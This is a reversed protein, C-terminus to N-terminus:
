QLAVTTTAARPGLVFVFVGVARKPLNSAKSNKKYEEFSKQISARGSKRMTDVNVLDKVAAKDRDGDLLVRLNDMNKVERIKENYKSDVRPLVDKVLKTKEVDKVAKEMLIRDLPLVDVKVCFLVSKEAAKKDIVEVVMDLSASSDERVDIKIEHNSDGKKFARYIPDNSIASVIAFLVTKKKYADEISNSFPLKVLQMAEAILERVFGPELRPAEEILKALLTSGDSSSQAKEALTSKSLADSLEDIKSDLPTSKESTSDDEPYLKMGVGNVEKDSEPKEIKVSDKKKDSNKTNLVLKGAQM